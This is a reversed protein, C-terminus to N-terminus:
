FKTTTNTNNANAVAIHTTDTHRDAATTVSAKAKNIEFTESDSYCFPRPGGGV